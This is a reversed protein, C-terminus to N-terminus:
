RPASRELRANIWREAERKPRRDATTWTEIVSLAPVQRLLDALGVVDLDTFHRGDREREGNDM